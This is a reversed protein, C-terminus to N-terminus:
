GGPLELVPGFFLGASPGAVEFIPESMSFSMSSFSRQNLPAMVDVHVALFLRPPLIPLPFEMGVRAGVSAYLISSPLLQVRTPFMISGADGVACGVFWGVHYCVLLAGTLRVFNVKGDPYSHTDMPPNVHGEFNFSVSHYRFGVGASLGVNSWDNAVLEVGGSLWLRVATSFPEPPKPPDPEMGKFPAMPLKEPWMDFKTIVPESCLPCDPCPQAEPCPTPTPVKKSPGIPILWPVVVAGATEVVETCSADFVETSNGLRKGDADFLVFLAGFGPGARRITLKVNKEASPDFPDRGGLHGAVVNRFFDEGPCAGTGPGLVYELRM